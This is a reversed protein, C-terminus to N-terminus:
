HLTAPKPAPPHVTTVNIRTLAPVPAQPEAATTVSMRQGAQGFATAVIRYDFSLTSRGGQSERVIFGNAAKTAVFLGRTDGNPTLFVHYANTPDISAAFSADLRIAATGGVLQATGTEEVTPLTTKPSFSRVTVGRAVRAFNNLSGKYNLDGAANVYFVPAGSGDTLVLPFGGLPARGLLGIYSGSFDGGNGNTNRASLAVYGGMTDVELGRGTATHVLIGTGTNSGAFLGYGSDSTSQMGIGSTSFGYVGTGSGGQYGYVGVGNGTTSGYVGYGDVSAGGVGAIGGSATAFGFVGYGGPSTGAVGARNSASSSGFIGDNALSTGEIGHNTNSKGSVGLGFSSTGLVGAGSNTNTGTVCGISGTACTVTTLAESIAASAFAPHTVAFTAAALTGLVAARLSTRGTIRPFHSHFSM